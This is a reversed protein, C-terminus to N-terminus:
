CVTNKSVPISGGYSVREVKGSRCIYLDDSLVEDCDILTENASRIMEILKEPDACKAPLLILEHVSSPLIYFDDMLLDRIKEIVGPYFLVASGWFTTKNTLVFLPIGTENDIYDICSGDSTLLLNRRDDEDNRLVDTIEYMVAPDSEFSYSFAKEFLEEKSIEMSELLDNTIGARFEGSVVYAVLAFGCGTDIYPVTKLFDKNRNINLIRLKIDSTEKNLDFSPTELMSATSLSSLVVDVADRSLRSVSKGQLYAPYFQEVYLTPACYSGHPKFLIGNWKGYQPKNVSREIIEMDKVGSKVLADKCSHIFEKKFENISLM